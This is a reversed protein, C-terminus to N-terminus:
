LSVVWRARGGKADPLPQLMLLSVVLCANVELTARRTREGLGLGSGSGLGLGLGLRLRLGLGLGLGSGLGLGLGRGRGLGLWARVAAGLGACGARARFASLGKYSTAGHACRASLRYGMCARGHREAVFEAVHAWDCARHALPWPRVAHEAHHEDRRDVGGEEDGKAGERAPM